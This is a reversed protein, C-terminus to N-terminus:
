AGIRHLDGAEVVTERDTTLDCGQHPGQGSGGMLDRGQPGPEIAGIRARRDQIEKREIAGGGGVVLGRPRRHPGLPLLQHRLAAGVQGGGGGIHAGAGVIGVGGIRELPGANPAAEAAGAEEGLHPDAPRTVHHRRGPAAALAVQVDAAAGLESVLALGAGRPLPSVAREL